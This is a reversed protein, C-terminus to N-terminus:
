EAAPEGAIVVGAGSLYRVPFSLGPQAARVASVGISDRLGPLVRSPCSSDHPVDVVCEGRIGNRQRRPRSARVGCDPCQSASALAAAAQRKAARPLRKRNSM